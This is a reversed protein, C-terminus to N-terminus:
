NKVLVGIDDLEDNKYKVEDDHNNKTTHQFPKPFCFDAQDFSLLESTPISQTQPGCTNLGKLGFHDNQVLFRKRWVDEQRHDQSESITSQM